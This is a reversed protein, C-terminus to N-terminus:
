KFKIEIKTDIGKCMKLVAEPEPKSYEWWDYRRAGVKRPGNMTAFAYNKDYCKECLIGIAGELKCHLCKM